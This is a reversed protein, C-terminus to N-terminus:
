TEKLNSRRLGELSKNLEKIAPLLSLKIANALDDMAKHVAKVKEVEDISM